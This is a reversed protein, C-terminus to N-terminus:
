PNETTATHVLEVVAPIMKTPHGDSQSVPVSKGKDCGKKVHLVKKSSAPLNNQIELYTKGRQLLEAIKLELSM